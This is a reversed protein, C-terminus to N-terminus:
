WRRSAALVRDIARRIEVPIVPGGPVVVVGGVVGPRSAMLDLTRTLFPRALLVPQGSLHVFALDCPNVAAFAVLADDAGSDLILLSVGVIRRSPPGFFMAYMSLM